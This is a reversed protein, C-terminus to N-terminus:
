IILASVAGIGVVSHQVAASSWNPPYVDLEKTRMKALRGLIYRQLRRVTEWQRSVFDVGSKLLLISLMQSIDEQNNIYRIQSCTGNQILHRAAFEIGHDLQQNGRYGPLSFNLISEYFLKSCLTM